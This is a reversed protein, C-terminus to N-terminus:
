VLQLQVLQSGDGLRKAFPTYDDSLGVLFATPDYIQRWLQDAGPARSLARAALIGIRAPEYNAPKFTDPLAFSLQGLVSMGLFYSTLQPTRLYHGRPTFVSYDIMSGIIPSNATKNHADILAKEETALPGLTVPLGLEAAALQYIQEARSASTAVKTGAFAVTQAKAAQLGITVLRDLKPLLTKQETDRLFRDFVQHFEHYAVDTTVFVPWGQYDNGEYAFQMLRYDAPVVVFGNKLLADTVGPKDLATKVTSVIKVGDLSAPTAPGAYAPRDSNMLATPTYAGFNALSVPFKFAVQEIPQTNTGTTTTQAKKGSSGCGVAFGAALSLVLGCAFLRKNM